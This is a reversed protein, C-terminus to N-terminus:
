CAGVAGHLGQIAQAPDAPDMGEDLTHNANGKRRCIMVAERGAQALLAAAGVGGAPGDYADGMPVTDLHSGVHIPPASRDCGPLRADLHLAADRMVELRLAQSEAPSDSPRTLGPGGVGIFNIRSLVREVSAATGDCTM